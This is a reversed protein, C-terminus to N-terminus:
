SLDAWYMEYVHVDAEGKGGDGLRRGVLRVTEFTEDPGHSKYGALVQRAFQIDARDDSVREGAGVMSEVTTGGQTQAESAARQALEHFSGATVRAKVPAADVSEAGVAANGEDEEVRELKLQRVQIRLPTEVFPTYRAGGTGDENRATGVLLNTITRVTEFPRQDSVGHVAIVAVKEGAAGEALQESMINGEIEAGCVSWGVRGM